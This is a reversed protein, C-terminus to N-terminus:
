LENVEHKLELVRTERGLTANHWRQLEALQSKVLEEAKKRETNERINCQVVKKNDALYVNSVFEVNIRRGDITELPLDDYRIYEKQQLELFKEQNAFIDKFFGLQWIEKGIFQEHSYGLIEILFPNVDVVMGTGVDLILIGDKASEFLRRYRVESVSLANESRKHEAIENELEKTRSRVDEELKNTYDFKAKKLALMELAKKIIIITDRYSTPKVVYNFAGLDMAMRADDLSEYGSFMIAEYLNKKVDLLKLLELGSMDPLMVDILFLDAPWNKIKEIAKKICDAAEVIYGDASLGEILMNRVMADDDVVFIRNNNDTM